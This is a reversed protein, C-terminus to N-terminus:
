RVGQRCRTSFYERKNYSAQLSQILVPLGTHILYKVYLTEITPVGSAVKEEIESQLFELCEHFPRTPYADNLIDLIQEVLWEFSITYPDDSLVALSKQSEADSEEEAARDFPSHEHDRDVFGDPVIFEDLVKAPTKANELRSITTPPCLETRFDNHVEAYLCESLALDNTLLSLEYFAIDNEFYNQGLGSLISDQPSEYKIAKLSITSVRSSRHSGHSYASSALVDLGDTSLPLLYPDSVSPALNSKSRAYHFAFATILGTMRSYLLVLTAPHHYAFALTPARASHGVNKITM